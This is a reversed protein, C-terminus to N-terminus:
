KLVEGRRIIMYNGSPIGSLEFFGGSYVGDKVMDNNTNYATGDSGMWVKTHGFRKQINNKNCPLALFITHM